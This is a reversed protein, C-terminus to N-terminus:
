WGGELQLGYPSYSTNEVAEGSENSVLTTSGLHDPHLYIKQGDPKLEAIRQGEHKVYTYNFSGSANKVMVFDDSFYIVTEKLAGGEYTKKVLVREEIPHYEYEQLLPGAESGNYIKWLQNLSNYVRYLGDGSILSGTASYQLNLTDAFAVPMM